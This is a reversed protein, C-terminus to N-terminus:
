FLAAVLHTPIFLSDIQATLQTGCGMLQKVLAQQQHIHDFGL